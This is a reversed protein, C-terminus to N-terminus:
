ALMHKCEPGHIHEAEHELNFELYEDYSFFSDSKRLSVTPEEDKKLKWYDKYYEYGFERFVITGSNDYGMNPPVFVLVHRCSPHLPAEHPTKGDWEKPKFYGQTLQSLKYPKPKRLNASDHYMSKCYKCIRHDCVGLFVVTPDKVGIDSALKTIGERSAYAQAIKTENAVLMDVYRGAKDFHDRISRIAESPTKAKAVDALIHNKIKLQQADMYDSTIESLNEVTKKDPETTSGYLTKLTFNYIGEITHLPDARRVVEFYVKPGKFLRGLLRAKTNEFLSEIRDVIVKRQADTLKM